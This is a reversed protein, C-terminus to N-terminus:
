RWALCTRSSRFVAEVSSPNQVSHLNVRTLIIHVRSDHVELCLLTRGPEHIPFRPIASRPIVL